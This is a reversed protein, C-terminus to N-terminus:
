DGEKEKWQKDPNEIVISWQSAMWARVDEFFKSAETTSTKSLTIVKGEYSFIPCANYFFSCLLDKSIKIGTPLPLNYIFSTDYGRDDLIDCAQALMLGWIAGLQNETKDARKVTLSSEVIAGEKIGKWFRQKEAEIAPPHVLKDGQKIGIFKM